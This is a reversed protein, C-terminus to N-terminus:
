VRDDEKTHKRGPNSPWVLSVWKMRTAEQFKKETSYRPTFEARPSNQLEREYSDNKKWQNCHIKCQELLMYQAILSCM